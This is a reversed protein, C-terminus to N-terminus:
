IKDQIALRNIELKIADKTSVLKFINDLGLTKVLENFANESVKTDVIFGEESVRNYKNLFIAGGWRHAIRRLVENGSQGELLTHM